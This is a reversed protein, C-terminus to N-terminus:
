DDFLTEYVNYYPVARGVSGDIVVRKGLPRELYVHWPGECEDGQEGAVSTCVTALVVVADDDEAVVIEDVHEDGALVFRLQLRGPEREMYGVCRRARICRPLEGLIEVEVDHGLRNAVAEHVREEGIGTVGVQRCGRSSSEELVVIGERLLASRDGADVLLTTDDPEPMRERQCVCPLEVGSM